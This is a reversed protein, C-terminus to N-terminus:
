DLGTSLCNSHEEITAALKNRWVKSFPFSHAWEQLLIRLASAGEHLASRCMDPIYNGGIKIKGSDEVVTQLMTHHSPHSMTNMRKITDLVRTLLLEEDKQTMSKRIASHMTKPEPPKQTPDSTEDYWRNAQDPRIRVFCMRVWTEFLHRVMMFAQTYYGALACDFVIKATGGAVAIFQIRLEEAHSPDTEFPSKRQELVAEHYLRLLKYWVRVLAEHRRIAISRFHQEEDDFALYGALEDPPLDLVPGGITHALEQWENRNPQPVGSEPAVM